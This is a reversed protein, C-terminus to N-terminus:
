TKAPGKCGAEHSNKKGWREQEQKTLRRLKDEPLDYEFSGKVSGRVRLWAIPKNLNMIRSIIENLDEITFTGNELWERKTMKPMLRDLICSATFMHCNNGFLHYSVKDVNSILNRASIMADELGLPMGTEDDCAAFICTGSRFNNWTDKQGNVFETLSVEQLKGDGSLEAVSSNGLYIGSHEAVGRSLSVLIPTGIPPPASLIRKDFKRRINAGLSQFLGTKGLLNLAEGGIVGGIPHIMSGLMPAITQFVGYSRKVKVVAMEDNTM